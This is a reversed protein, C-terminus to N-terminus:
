GAIRKSIQMLSVIAALAAILSAGIAGYVLTTLGSASKSADKAATVADNAADAADAAADAANNATDAIDGVADSLDTMSDALDGVADVAAAAAATADAIDGALNGVIEDGLSALDSAVGAIEGSLAAIDDEVDDTIGALDDALGSLDSRVDELLADVQAATSPGVAFTSNMLEDDGEYFFYTWTGLPADSALEMPNSNATQSYYPVTELDGVLVWVDPTTTFTDTIWYLTDDPSYIEIYGTIAFDNSIDFSVTNGRDFLAKRPTVQVRAAVISFNLQVLLDKWDTINITYDGLSLTDDDPVEWYGTFNGDADTVTTASGPDTDVNMTWEDTSNYIVFDLAGNGGTKDAFHDGSISVNYLNPAVAPDISVTTAETVTFQVTLENEAEDTVMINYVGPEVNPIWFSEAIAAGSVTGYDEYLEDGFTVNYDGNEFGIGTLGMETGAEGSVPNIILAILGVKFTDTTDLLEEDVAGVDYTTFDVAPSIFTTTFTGDSDTDVTTLDSIKTTTGATWLELTVLTGAIQTFNSGTVTITAGPAGYTPDVEIEPIGTIEFEEDAPGKTASSEVANLDYDNVDGMNPIIVDATFEGNSGVTVTDGDVVRVATGDIDFTMTNTATWGRGDVRVVTGTTGEEPDITISAGVTFDDTATWGAEDIANIDYDGYASPDPVDFSYTFYGLEDTEVSSTKVVPTGGVDWTITVDNESSFGYGKVTLEDNVLGSSPSVSLKPLVLIPDAYRITEVTSVDRVWIFHNGGVDSPVDIEALYTGDPNGTTTNMLGAPTVYDWYVNVVSGSTVGSGSVVLTDGKDNYENEFTYMVGNLQVDDVYIPGPYGAGWMGYTIEIGTVTASAMNTSAWTKWEALTGPWWTGGLTRNYPSGMVGGGITDYYGWAEQMQTWTTNSRQDDPDGGAMTGMAELKEDTGGVGNQDILINIYPNGWPFFTDGGAEPLGSSANYSGGYNATNSAYMWITPEVFDQLPVPTALTIIIRGYDDNISDGAIVKISDTGSRAVTTSVSADGASSQEETWAEATRDEIGSVSVAGLAAQAPMIPIMSMLFTAIVLISIARKSLKNMKKREKKERMRAIIEFVM